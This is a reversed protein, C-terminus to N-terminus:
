GLEGRWEGKSKGREGPLCIPDSKKGGEWVNGSHPILPVKTHTLAHTCFFGSFPLQNRGEGGFFPLFSYYYSQKRKGKLLAKGEKTEGCVSKQPEFVAGGLFTSGKETKPCHPDARLNPKEKIKEM